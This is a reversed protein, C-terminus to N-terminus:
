RKVRTFAGLDAGAPSGRGAAPSDTRLSFEGRDRAAFLPDAPVVINPGFSIKISGDGYKTQVMSHAVSVKVEACRATCATAFDKGDGNGWFIANTFTHSDPAVAEYNDILVGIGPGSCDPTLARV